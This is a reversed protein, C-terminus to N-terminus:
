IIPWVWCREMNPAGRPKPKGWFGGRSAMRKPASPGPKSLGNGKKKKQSVNKKEQHFPPLALNTSKSSKSTSIMFLDTSESHHKQHFKKRCTQNLHKWGRSWYFGFHVHNWKIVIFPFCWMDSGAWLGIKLLFAVCKSIRWGFIWQIWQQSGSVSSFFRLFVSCCLSVEKPPRSIDGLAKM